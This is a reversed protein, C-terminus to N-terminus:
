DVDKSLKKGTKIINYANIGLNAAGCVVYFGEPAGMACASAAITVLAWVALGIMQGFEKLEKKM